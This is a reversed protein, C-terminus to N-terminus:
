NMRRLSRSESERDEVFMELREDSVVFAVEVSGEGPEYAHRVANGCAETVALKLDALEEDGVPFSRALGALALRALLLYDPKAPFSLQVVKDSM